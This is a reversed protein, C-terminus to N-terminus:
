RPAPEGPTTREEAPSGERRPVPRNHSGSRPVAAEIADLLTRAETESRLRIIRLDPREAFLRPYDRRRRHYTSLSWWIISDRSFAMRLSERNRGWLVERRAWRRMTRLIVRGMVVRFPFDLWIVTDARAWVLDRAASYNGDVVWTEAAIATAVRERFVPVPAAVWNAEWSLGDLEIHDVGMREALAAGFTTKGSGSTGVVNVREM